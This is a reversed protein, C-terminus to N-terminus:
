EYVAANNRQEGESHEHSTRQISSVESNIVKSTEPRVKDELSLENYGHKVVRNCSIVTIWLWGVSGICRTPGFQGSELGVREPNWSRTGISKLEPRSVRSGDSWGASLEFSWM